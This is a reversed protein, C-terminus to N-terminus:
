GATEGYSEEQSKRIKEMREAYNPGEDYWSELLVLIDKSPTIFNMGCNHPYRAIAIGIVRGRMDFVPGGSNGPNVAADIMTIPNNSLGDEQVNLKSVIGRTVYNFFNLALPSGIVLISRGVEVETTLVLPNLGTKSVQLVACDTTESIRIAQVNRRTDDGFLVAYNGERDVIHRATVILDPAIIFGSGMQRGDVEILVTSAMQTEISIGNDPVQPSEVAKLGTYLGFTVTVFTAMILGVTLIVEVRKSM